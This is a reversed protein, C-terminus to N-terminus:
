IVRFLSWTWTRRQPWNHFHDNICESFFIGSLLYDRFGSVHWQVRALVFLHTQRLM